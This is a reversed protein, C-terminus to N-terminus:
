EGLLHTWVHGFKKDFFRGIVEGGVGSQGKDAFVELVKINVGQNIWLEGHARTCGVTDDEFGIQGRQTQALSVKIGDLAKPTINTLGYAIKRTLFTEGRCPSEHKFLIGNCAYMGNAERYNVTFRYAYRKAIVDSRRPYFPTIEKKPTEFVLSYCDSTGAQHILAKQVLGLFHITKLIRLTDM